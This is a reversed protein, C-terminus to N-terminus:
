PASARSAQLGGSLLFFGQREIADRIATAIEEIPIARKGDVPRWPMYDTPLNGGTRDSTFARVNPETESVFLYILM